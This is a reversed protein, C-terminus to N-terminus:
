ARKRPLDLFPLRVVTAGVRGRRGEVTWEVSSGPAVARPPRCRPSPSLKKLIPSWGHSTVRGIQRAGRAFLPVPARRRGGPRRRCARPPTCARSTTGTSSWGVLRRAPGGAAARRALARKGVFDAKGLDVLRGLGIEFPSYNQDPNM